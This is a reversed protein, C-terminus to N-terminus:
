QLFGEYDIDMPSGVVDWDEEEATSKPTTSTRTAMGLGNHWQIWAKINDVSMSGRRRNLSHAKEGEVRRREEMYRESDNRLPSFPEQWEPYFLFPDDELEENFPRSPKPATFGYQRPQERMLANLSPLSRRYRRKNIAKGVKLQRVACIFATNTLLRKEQRPTMTTQRQSTAVIDEFHLPRDSQRKSGYPFPRVKLFAMLSPCTAWFPFRRMLRAQRPTLNPCMPRHVSAFAEPSNYLSRQPTPAQKNNGLRLANFYAALPTISKLDRRSTLMSNSHPSCHSYYRRGGRAPRSHTASSKKPNTARSGLDRGHDDAAPQDSLRSSQETPRSTPKATPPSSVLTRATKQSM